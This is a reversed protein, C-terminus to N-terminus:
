RWFVTSFEVGTLYARRLAPPETKWGDLLGQATPQDPDIGRNWLAVTTYIGDQLKPFSRAFFFRRGRADAPPPWNERTTSVGPQVCNPAQAAVEAAASAAVAAAVAAEAAVEAADAARQAASPPSSSSRQRAAVM